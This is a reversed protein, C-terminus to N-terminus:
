NSEDVWDLFCAQSEQNKATGTGQSPQAKDAAIRKHM